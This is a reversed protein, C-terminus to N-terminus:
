TFPNRSPVDLPLAAHHSGNYQPGACHVTRGYAVATLRRSLTDTRAAVGSLM